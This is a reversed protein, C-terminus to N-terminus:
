VGLLVLPVDLLFHFVIPGSANRAKSKIYAFSILISYFFDAILNVGTLALSFNYAYLYPLLHYSSMMASTLLVATLSQRPTSPHTPMLRDLVYGRMLTEEMVVDALLAIVAFSFYWGPVVTSSTSGAMHEAGSGAVASEIILFVIGVPIAVLFFILSWKLSKRVGTGNWGVSSVLSRIGFSQRKEYFRVFLFLFAFVPGYQAVLSFLLSLLVAASLVSPLQSVSSGGRSVFSIVGWYSLIFLWVVVPGKKGSRTLDERQKAM